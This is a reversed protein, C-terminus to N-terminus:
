LGILAVDELEESAGPAFYAIHLYNPASPLMLDHPLCRESWAEASTQMCPVFM